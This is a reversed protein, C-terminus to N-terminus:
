NLNVPLFQINNVMFKLLAQSDSSNIQGDIVCEANRMQSPNFNIINAVYKNLYIVDLMSVVEDLNVDGYIIESVVSRKELVTECEGDGDADILVGISGDEEAYILAKSYASVNEPLYTEIIESGAEITLSDLCDGTLVINEGSEAMLIENGNECSVTVTNWPLDTEATIGIRFFAGNASVAASGDSYMTIKDANNSDVTILCKEFSIQYNSTGSYLPFIEFGEAEYDLGARRCEIAAAITSFWKFDSSEKVDGASDGLPSLLFDGADEPVELIPVYVHNRSYSSTGKFYGYENIMSLSNSALGIFSDNDGSDIGLGPVNWELTSSKFYICRDDSFSDLYPDAILIRGDYTENGLNWTGYEVDYAIAAHSYNKGFFCVLTMSKGKGSASAQSILQSLVTKKTMFASTWAIEQQVADCEQLLQYYSIISLNREDSLDLEYVSQYRPDWMSVSFVGSKALIETVAMGYEAGLWESNMVREIRVREMANLSSILNDRHKELLRYGESIYEPVLSDHSLQWNDSGWDFSQRTTTTVSTSSTTDSTVSVTESSTTTESSSSATTTSTTTTESSSVTVSETSTTVSQSSVTSQSSSSVSSTVSESTSESATHSSSATTTSVTTATTEMTTTTTSSETTTTAVTTEKPNVIICVESNMLLPFENSEYVDSYYSSMGDTNFYIPFAYYDGHLDDSQLPINYKEAAAKVTDEDASDMLFSIIPVNDKCTMSETAISNLVATCLLASENVHASCFAVPLATGLDYSESEYSLHLVEEAAPSLDADLSIGIIDLTGAQMLTIPIDFDGANAFVPEIIMRPLKKPDYGYKNLLQADSIVAGLVAGSESTMEYQPVSWKGNYSNYYICSKDSFAADAPDAVLIRKNYVSGTYHWSGTESGYALVTHPDAGSSKHLRILAPSGGSVITEANQFAAASDNLSLAEEDLAAIEDTYQLLNYYNVFGTFVDKRVPASFDHLNEATNSIDSVNWIGNYHLLALVAMGYSIDTLENPLRSEIRQIETDNRGQILKQKLVSNLYPESGDLLEKEAFSWMDEEYAFSGAASASPFKLSEFIGTGGVLMCLVIMIIQIRKKM